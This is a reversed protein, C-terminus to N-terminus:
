WNGLFQDASPLIKSSIIGLHTVSPFAYSKFLEYYKLNAINATSSCGPEVPTFETTDPIRNNYSPTGGGGM